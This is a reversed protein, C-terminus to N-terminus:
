FVRTIESRRNRTPVSTNILNGDPTPNEVSTQRRKLLVCWVRERMIELHRWVYIRRSISFLKSFIIASRPRWTLDIDCRHGYGESIERSTRNGLSKIIKQGPNYGGTNHISYVVTATWSFPFFFLILAPSRSEYPIDRFLPPPSFFFIDMREGNKVNKKQDIISLTVHAYANYM